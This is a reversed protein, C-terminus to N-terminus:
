MDLCAHEGSDIAIIKLIPQSRSMRRNLLLALGVGLLFGLGGAAIRLGEAGGFYRAAFYAAFFLILPCLYVVAAIGIVATSQSEVTVMDGLRAGAANFAEATVQEPRLGCGECSGCDHGCASQRIVSIEAHNEDIVRIVKAHQLM